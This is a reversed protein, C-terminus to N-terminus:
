LAIYQEPTYGLLAMIRLEDRADYLANHIERYRCDGSLRRLTPEVGYGRKLRGTGCCDADKPITPNYQRYAALRMIDFWCFGSLEPLHNRDFSANYAYLAAVDWSKLWATLMEMAAKRTAFIPTIREDPVLVDEYMGGIAAEEPFICYKEDVPQFSDGDAIVIGISMVQDVWNTETDIVAFTGM